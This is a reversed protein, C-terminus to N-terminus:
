QHFDACSTCWEPLPPPPFGHLKEVVVILSASVRATKVGNQRHHHFHMYNKWWQHFDACNKWWEPSSSPPFGHLKEVVAILSSSVRATKVGNQRHHHHHFDM